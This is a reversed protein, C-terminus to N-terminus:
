SGASTCPTQKWRQKREKLRGTVPGGHDDARVKQLVCARPSGQILHQAVDWHSSATLAVTAHALPYFLPRHTIKIGPEAMSENRSSPYTMWKETGEWGDQRNLSHARQPLSQRKSQTQVAGLMIPGQGGNSARIAVTVSSFIITYHIRCELSKVPTISWKGPVQAGYRQAKNQVEIKFCAYTNDSSLWTRTHHPSSWVTGSDAPKSRNTNWIETLMDSILRVAPSWHEPNRTCGNCVFVCYHTITTMTFEWWLQWKCIRWFASESASLCPATKSLANKIAKKKKEM